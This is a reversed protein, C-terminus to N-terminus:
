EVWFSVNHSVNPSSNIQAKADAGGTAGQGEEQGDAEKLFPVLLQHSQHINFSTWVGGASVASHIWGAVAKEGCQVPGSRIVCNKLWHVYVYICM